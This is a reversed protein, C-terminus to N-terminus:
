GSHRPVHDLLIATLLDSNRRCNTYRNKFDLFEKSLTDVHHNILLRIGRMIENPSNADVKVALDGIIEACATQDAILVSKGRVIAELAPIGFGEYLSPFVVAQCTHYLRDLEDDSVFGKITIVNSAEPFESQMQQIFAPSYKGVMIVDLNPDTSSRLFLDFAQVARLINKNRRDSGILLLFNSSEPPAAELPANICGVCNEVIPIQTEPIGFYKSIERQSFSSVTLIQHSRKIQLAVLFRFIWKSMPSGNFGESMFWVDHIIVLRRQRKKGWLPGFNNVSLVVDLRRTYFPLLFMELIIRGVTSRVKFANREINPHKEIFERDMIQSLQRISNRTYLTLKVSELRIGSVVNRFFREVGIPRDADLSICNIGVSPIAISM